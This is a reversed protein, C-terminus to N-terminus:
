EKDKRLAEDLVEIDEKSASYVYPINRGLENYDLGYGILFDNKELVKGEFDLPVEVERANKKNFLACVYVNKPNHSKIHNILFKMSYGTDIIDEVIIVSRGNCDFSLDKLLRITNTRQSGAYSAIQIFDTYVPITIYNMLDYMFNLSGKMVGVLLPIKNDKSVKEEIELAIRQCIKQIEEQSLVIKKDM